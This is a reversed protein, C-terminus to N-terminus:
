DGRVGLQIDENLTCCTCDSSITRDTFLIVVTEVAELVLLLRTADLIAGSSKQLDLQFAPRRMSQAHNGRRPIGHESTTIPLLYLFFLCFDYHM